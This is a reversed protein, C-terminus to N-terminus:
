IMPTCQQIRGRSSRHARLVIGTFDVQVDVVGWSESRAPASAHREVNCPLISGESSAALPTNHALLSDQKLLSVAKLGSHEAPDEPAPDLLLGKQVEELLPASRLHPKPAQKSYLQIAVPSCVLDEAVTSFVATAASGDTATVSAM